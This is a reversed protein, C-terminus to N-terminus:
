GFTSRFIVWDVQIVPYGVMAFNRVPLIDGKEQQYNKAMSQGKHNNNKPAFTSDPVILQILPTTVPYKTAMKNRIGLVKLFWEEIALV